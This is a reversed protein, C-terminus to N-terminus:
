RHGMMQFLSSASFPFSMTLVFTQLNATLLLISGILSM